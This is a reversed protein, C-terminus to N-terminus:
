TRQGREITGEELYCIIGKIHEHRGIKLDISKKSKENFINKIITTSPTGQSM